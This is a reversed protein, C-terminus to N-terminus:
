MCMDNEDQKKKKEVHEFVCDHLKCLYKNFGDIM